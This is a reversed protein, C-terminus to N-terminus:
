TGIYSTLSARGMAQQKGAWFQQASICRHRVSKAENERLAFGLSNLGLKVRAPGLWFSTESGKQLNVQPQDESNAWTRSSRIHQIINPCM